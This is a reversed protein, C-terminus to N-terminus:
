HEALAEIIALCENLDGDQTESSIVGEKVLQNLLSEIYGIQKVTLSKGSKKQTAMSSLAQRNKANLADYNLAKKAAFSLLTSPMANLKAFVSGGTSEEIATEATRWPSFGPKGRREEIAKLAAFAGKSSSSCISLWSTIPPMTRVFEELVEDELTAVKLHAYLEAPHIGAIGAANHLSYASNEFSDALAVIWDSFEMTGKAAWIEDFRM